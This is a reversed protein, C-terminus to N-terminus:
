LSACLGAPRFASRQSSPVTPGTLSPGVSLEKLQQPGQPVSACSSHDRIGGSPTSGLDLVTWTVSTPVPPLCSMGALRPLPSAGGGGLETHVPVSIPNFQSM